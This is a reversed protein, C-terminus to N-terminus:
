LILSQFIRVHLVVVIDFDHVCSKIYFCMILHVNLKTRPLIIKLKAVSRVYTRCAELVCIDNVTM